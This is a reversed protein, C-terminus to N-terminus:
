GCKVYAATLKLAHMLTFFSKHNLNGEDSLLNENNSIKSGKNYTAYWYGSRKM